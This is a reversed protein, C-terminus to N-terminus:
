LSDPSDVGLTARTFQRITQAIRVAIQAHEVTPDDGPYRVQAAYYTLLALQDDDVAVAVGVSRCLDALAVLDHTRPPPRDHSALIAKLYKEACQQAHFTAGYVLAPQQHIALLALTIDEEAKNIWAHVEDSLAHM